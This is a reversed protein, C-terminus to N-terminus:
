IWSVKSESKNIIRKINARHKISIFIFLTFFVIQITLNDSLFISALAIILLTILSSLSVMKTIKMLSLWVVVIIIAMLWHVNCFLITSFAFGMASAVGKGGKFGAFIPYCHGFVCVLGCIAGLEISITSGLFSAVGCKLIDLITIALGATKGLNRGANTAGLNGSGLKRIDTKYFIKGIILAWSISGLLYALIIYIFEM